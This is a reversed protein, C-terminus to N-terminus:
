RIYFLARGPLAAKASQLDEFTLSMSRLDIEGLTSDFYQGFLPISWAIDCEPLAASLAKHAEATFATNNRLDLQTLSACHAVHAFDSTVTGSLNLSQLGTLLPLSTLDPAVQGSFDLAAVDRRYTQGDIKLYRGAYVAAVLSFALLLGVFAQLVKRPALVGRSQLFMLMAQLAAVAGAGYLWYASLFPHANLGLYLFYAAGVASAASVALRRAFFGASRRRSRTAYRPHGPRQQSRLM